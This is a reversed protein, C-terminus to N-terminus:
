YYRGITPDDVIVKKVEAPNIAGQKAYVIKGGPEVILTYPSTGPWKPDISAVLQDKSGGFIYNTFSAEAGQLSKLADDKKETGDASISIMEFDRRRYMRNMEVFAKLGADNSTAWITIM